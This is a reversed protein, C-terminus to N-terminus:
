LLFVGKGTVKTDFHRYAEEAQDLSWRDTFLKEMPLKRDAIYNACDAQGTSLGPTAPQGAPARYLHLDTGCM